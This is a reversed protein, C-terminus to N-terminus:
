VGQLQPKRLTTRHHGRRARGLFGRPVVPFGESVGRMRRLFGRPFGERGGFSCTRLVPAWPSRGKQKWCPPRVHFVGRLCVRLPSVCLGACVPPRRVRGAVRPGDSPPRHRQDRVGALRGRTETQGWPPRHSDLARPPRNPPQRGFRGWIELRESESQSSFSTSKGVHPKKKELVGTKM